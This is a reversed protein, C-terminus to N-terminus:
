NAIRSVGNVKEIKILNSSASELQSEHTVIIMQPLLSIDRLLNILDQKRASDLYITPEDLLITELDGKAMSKTIGLRLALAIAIKEGGSVMSMSSEGEPGWVVVNYDEDLTLDSYNFNFDDFFEKTNKQIVPKSNNRLDRQIGNKGYLERIDKLVSLLHSVNDYEQQFKDNNVIKETLINLTTISEKARGKIESLENSFSEYRRSYMEDHYIIQEYKEEDYTSSDLKRNIIDIQNHSVDIDDKVSDFRSLLSNKNQVFGKLRNYEANKEKLGEIREELEAETLDGSLHSDNEMALKINRVHIDIDNKIHKLNYEAEDPNGLVDLAGKAQNYDDHDQKYKERNDKELAIELIVEGLKASISEKADLKEDIENLRVISKQLNSFMFKYERIEDSLVNVNDLKDELSKRNKTFLSINENNEDIAKKNVDIDHNYQNILQDKKFDSIESQCVPCVNDVDSLEELPKECSAIIQEFAVIEEKKSNIDDTLSTIKTSIQNEFDVTVDFLKNLDDVPVLDDQHMGFNLLKEKSLSFFSEIDNRDSEIESLLDKKDKEYQTINALKKELDFKRDTLKTIKEDSSLYDLYGQKKGNLLVKQEKISDIKNQTENESNKLEKIRKVSKEFDLYIDLKSVYKSLREIESEAERIEDLNDQIVRKEKELNALSNKEINLSNLHTEYFEKEREMNRKSESLDDRLKKIENIQEELDHGKRKLEDLEAKKADHEMQLASKSYLKGKLESLKNDYSNIIPSLNKWAVELSDIGLLKGILKKKEAPLKDVLESIEGQRVYIANLFLNADMDLISQIQSSVEKEGSCILIFDSDSSTKTLLKSNIKSKNKERVIRYEKGKSLFDLEVTMSDTSNRILDILRSSTHQKFLVFSIAEFISSKGAGNEGVIVTIGKDFKITENEYSKFNKLKLRKFIM